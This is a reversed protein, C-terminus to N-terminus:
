QKLCFFIGCVHEVLYAYYDRYVQIQRRETVSRPQDCSCSNYSLISPGGKMVSGLTPLSIDDRDKELSAGIYVLSDAAATFFNPWNLECSLILTAALVRETENSFSKMDILKSILYLDM